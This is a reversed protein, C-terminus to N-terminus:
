ITGSSRKTRRPPARREKKKAQMTMRRIAMEQTDKRTNRTSDRSTEPLQEMSPEPKSRGDGEGGDPPDFSEYSPDLPGPHTFSSQHFPESKQLRRRTAANETEANFALFKIASKAHQVMSEKLPSPSRFSPKAEKHTPHSGLFTPLTPM